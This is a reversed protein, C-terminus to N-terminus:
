LSHPFHASPFDSMWLVDHIYSFGTLVAHLTGLSSTCISLLVPVPFITLYSCLIRQLSGGDSTVCYISSPLILLFRGVM